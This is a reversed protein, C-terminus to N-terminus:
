SGMCESATRTLVGPFLIILCHEEIFIPGSVQVNRAIPTQPHLKNLYRLSPILRPSPSISGWEHKLRNDSENIVTLLGSILPAVACLVRVGMVSQELDISPRTECKM